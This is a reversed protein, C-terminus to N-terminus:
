LGARLHRRGFVRGSKKNHFYMYSAKVRILRLTLQCIMMVIYKLTPAPGALKKMLLFIILECEGEAKRKGLMEVDLCILLDKWMIAAKQEFPGSLRFDFAGVLFNCRPNPFFPAVFASPFSFNLM